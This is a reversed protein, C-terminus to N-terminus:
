RDTWSYSILIRCRQCHVSWCLQSQLPPEPRGQTECVRDRDRRRHHGGPLRLPHDAFDPGQGAVLHHEEMESPHQRSPDWQASRDRSTPPVGILAQWLLDEM